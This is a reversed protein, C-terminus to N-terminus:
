YTDANIDYFQTVFQFEPIILRGSHAVVKLTAALTPSPVPFRISAAQVIMAM